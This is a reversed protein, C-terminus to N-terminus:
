PLSRGKQAWEAIWALGVLAFFGTVLAWSTHGDLVLFLSWFSFGILFVSGSYVQAFRRSVKELENAAYAFCFFGLIGTGVALWLLDDSLLTIALEVSGIGIATGILLALLVARPATRANSPLPANATNTAVANGETSPPIANGGVSHPDSPASTPCAQNTGNTESVANAEQSQLMM